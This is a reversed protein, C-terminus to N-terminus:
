GMTGGYSLYGSLIWGILCATWTIYKGEPSLKLRKAFVQCLVGIAMLISAIVAVKLSFDTWGNRWPVGWMICYPGLLPMLLARITPAGILNMVAFPTAVWAFIKLHCRDFGLIAKM